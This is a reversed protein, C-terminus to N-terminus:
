KWIGDHTEFAATVRQALSTVKRGASVRKNWSTKAWTGNERGFVCTCLQLLQKACHKCAAAKGEFLEMLTTSTHRSCGGHLLHGRLILHDVSSCPSMQTKEKCPQLAMTFAAFVSTICQLGSKLWRKGQESRHIILNLEARTDRKGDSAGCAASRCDVTFCFNQDLLEVNHM